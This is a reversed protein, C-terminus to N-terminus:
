DNEVYSRKDPSDSLVRNIVEAKIGRFRLYAEAFETGAKSQLRIGEEVILATEFDHRKHFFPYISKKRKKQVIM